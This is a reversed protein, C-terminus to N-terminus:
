QSKKDNAPQNLLYHTGTHKAILDLWTKPYHMDEVLPDRKESIPTLMAFDKYRMFQDIWLGYWESCLMEAWENNLANAYDIAADISEDRAIRSIEEDAAKVEELFYNHYDRRKEDIEPKMKKYNTYAFNAVLNSVWFMSHYSFHNLDVSNDFLCQPLKKVSTYFPIHVSTAADDTGFWFLGGLPNNENVERCEAIFSWATQQTGIPRENCYTKGEVEWSLPPIRYPCSWAGGGVDFTETMDLITGEFHNGMAEEIDEVSVKMGEPLKYYLEMRQKTHDGKVYDAFDDMGPIQMKKFFSWVRADCHRAGSFNVPGYAKAFDFEEDNQSDFWNHKRAFSITHKGYKCQTEDNLIIKNIRAQNAHGSICDDPIKMAVWAVLEDDDPERELDAKGVLELIWVENPDAISFSEGESAYGMTSALHTICEIAEACNRSRELAVYILSGYDIKGLKDEDKEFFTGGRQTGWTSEGIALSFENM